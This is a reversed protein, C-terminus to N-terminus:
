SRPARWRELAQATSKVGMKRRVVNHVVGSLNGYTIGLTAAAEALSRRASLLDMVQRERPTWGPSGRRRALRGVLPLRPLAAEVYLRAAELLEARDRIGTARKIEHLLTYPLGPTTDWRDAIQQYSLGEDLLRLLALQRDTLSEFGHAPRRERVPITHQMEPLFRLKITLILSAGQRGLTLREFLSHLLERQRSVPLSRWTTTFEALATRVRALTERDASGHSLRRQLREREAQLDAHQKQWRASVKTFQEESMKGDTFAEAWRHLREDLTVLESDIQQLQKSLEQHRAALLKEAEEGILQSMRPSGAFDALAQFVHAEIVDARKMVGPCNRQAGPESSECRYYRADNTGGRHAYLRHECHACLLLGLLPFDEDALTRTKVIRRQELTQLIREYTDLDYLRHECHRGQKLTGDKLRLYGAHAINTVIRHVTVTTWLRSTRGSPLGTKQMLAAIRRCGMGEHLLKDVMFQVYPARQPDPVISRREGPRVEAPDQWKWGWPPHGNPWYGAQRQSEHADLIRRRIGSRERASVLSLLDAMFADDEDDLDLDGCVVRLSVGHPKLYLYRIAKWVFDERAMRSVEYTVLHTFEGAEVRDILRSLVPRVPEGKQALQRITYAGSRGEEAFYEFTYNAPGFERDCYERCLRRQTELSHGSQVQM